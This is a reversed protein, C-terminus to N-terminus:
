IKATIKGFGGAGAFSRHLIYDHYFRDGFSVTEKQISGAGISKQYAM